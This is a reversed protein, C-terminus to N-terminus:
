QIFTDRLACHPVPIPSVSRMRLVETLTADMYVLKTRDDLSPLHTHGVVHDLEKHIKHMINPHHAVLLVAFCLTASSSDSGATFLDVCVGVLQKETFTTCKENKNNNIENIYIDMFDRLNDPDLSSKHKEVSRKIFKKVSFLADMFRHFNSSKPLIHRLPPFYNVLGGSVEGASFMFTLKQVLNLLVPDHRPFRTGGMVAWLINISSVGLMDKLSVSGDTEQIESILDQAEEHIVAEHSRRGIGLNRLHHLTFRRQEKWYDKQTFMVGLYEGGDRLKIFSNEARGNLDDNLLSEKVAEWGNVIVTPQSGLFLGVVDGFTSSLKWLQKHPNKADMYPLFGFLPLRSPGPPFGRPKRSALYLFWVLLVVVVLVLMKLVKQDEPIFYDVCFLLLILLLTALNSDILVT